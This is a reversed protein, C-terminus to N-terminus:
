LHRKKNPVIPTMEIKLGPPSWAPTQGSTILQGILLSVGRRYEAVEDGLATLQSDQKALREQMRGNEEQLEDFAKVLLNFESRRVEHRNTRFKLLWELLSMLGGGIIFAIIPNIVVDDTGM